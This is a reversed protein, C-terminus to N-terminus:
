NTICISVKNEQPITNKFINIFSKTSDNAKTIGNLLISNQSIDGEIITHKSFKIANIISDKFIKPTFHPTNHNILISIMKDDNSTNYITEIEPNINKEKQSNDEEDGM